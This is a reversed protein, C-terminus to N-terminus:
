KRQRKKWIIGSDENEGEKMVNDGKDAM